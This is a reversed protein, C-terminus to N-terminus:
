PAGVTVNVPDSVVYTSGGSCYARAVVTLTGTSLPTLSFGWPNINAPTVPLWSGSPLGGGISQYQMRVACGPTAIATALFNAPQGLTISPTSTILTIDTVINAGTGTVVVHAYGRAQPGNIPGAPYTAIVFTYSDNPCTASVNIHISAQGNADTLTPNTNYSFYPAAADGAEPWVALPAGHVPRGNADRFTALIGIQGGPPVTPDSVVVDITAGAQDMGPNYVTPPGTPAGPGDGASTCAWIALPLLALVGFLALLRSDSRRTSKM